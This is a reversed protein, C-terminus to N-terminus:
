PKPLPTLSKHTPEGPDADYRAMFHPANPYWSKDQEPKKWVSMGDLKADLSYITLPVFIYEWSYETGKRHIEILLCAEPDTALVYTFLAGDVIEGDPKGYRYIPRSQMRLPQPQPESNPARFGDIVEFRAAMDKMQALRLPASDNPKPADPLVKFQSYREAPSWVQRKGRMLQVKGQHVDAFENLEMGNLAPGHIHFHAIAAPRETPGTSYVTLLGDIVDGVPNSWRMQAKPDLTAPKAEDQDLVITYKQMAKIMYKLRAESLEDKPATDEIEASRAKVPEDAHLQLNLLGIIALAVM